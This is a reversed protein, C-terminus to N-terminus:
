PNPLTRDGGRAPPRQAPRPVDRWTHGAALSGITSRSMGLAAAVTQQSQGAALRRLADAATARTLKSRGNREGTPLKDHRRQDAANEAPTGWALNDLRANLRTGDLHRCQHGHPRPGVFAELVLRHVKLTRQRRDRMLGVALYGDRGPRTKIPRWESGRLSSWISGDSGVVYGPFSAIKRYTVEGGEVPATRAPAM